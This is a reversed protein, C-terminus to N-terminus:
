RKNHQIIAQAVSAVSGALAILLGVCVLRFNGSFEKRLLENLQQLGEAINALLQQIDRLADYCQRLLDIMVEFGVTAGNGPGDPNAHISHPTPEVTARPTPNTYIRSTATTAARTPYPLAM